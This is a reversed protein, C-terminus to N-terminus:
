WGCCPQTLRWGYTQVFCCVKFRGRFLKCCGGGKYFVCALQHRRWTIDGIGGDEGLVCDWLHVQLELVADGAGDVSLDDPVNWCVINCRAAVVVVVVVVAPM